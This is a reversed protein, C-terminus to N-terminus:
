VRTFIRLEGRDGRSIRLDADCFMTDFRGGRLQLPVVAQMGLAQLPSPLTIPRAGRVGQLRFTVATFEITTAAGSVECSHSLCVSVPLTTFPLLGPLQLEVINDLRAKTSLQVRQYVAGLRVPTGAGPPGTFGQSGGPVGAFTSSYALRWKGSLRDRLPTAAATASDAVTRELQAACAEVAARDSGTAAAGRDLTALLRLLAAKQTQVAAQHAETAESATAAQAGPADSETAVCQAARARPRPVRSPRLRAGPAACPPAPRAHMTEACAFLAGLRAVDDM